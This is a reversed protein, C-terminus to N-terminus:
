LLDTHVFPKEMQDSFINETSRKTNQALAIKEKRLVCGKFKSQSDILFQVFATVVTKFYRLLAVELKKELTGSCKFSYVHLPIKENKSSFTFKSWLFPFVRFLVRMRRHLLWGVWTVNGFTIGILQLFLVNPDPPLQIPWNTERYM